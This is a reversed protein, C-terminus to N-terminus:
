RVNSHITKNIPFLGVDYREAGTVVVHIDRAVEEIGGEWPSLRERQVSGEREAMGAVELHHVLLDVGDYGIDGHELRGISFVEVTSLYSSSELSM